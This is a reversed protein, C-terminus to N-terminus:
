KWKENMQSMENSCNRAYGVILALKENIGKLLEIEVRGIDATIAHIEALRDEATKQIKIEIKKPEAKNIAGKADNVITKYEDYSRAAKIRGATTASVNCHKAVFTINDCYDFFEKVQKYKSETIIM